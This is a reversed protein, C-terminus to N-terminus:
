KEIWELKDGAEIMGALTKALAASTRTGLDPAWIETKVDRPERQASQGEKESSAKKGQNRHCWVRGTVEEVVRKSGKKSQKVRKLIFLGAFSFKLELETM